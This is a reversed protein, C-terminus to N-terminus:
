NVSHNHRWFAMEDKQWALRKLITLGTSEMILLESNGKEPQSTIGWDSAIRHTIGHSHILCDTLGHITTKISANCAPFLFGYGSSYRSWYPCCMIRKMSSTTWHLWGAVLNRAPRGSTHHWILSWYPILPPVFFYSGSPKPLVGTYSNGELPFMKGYFSVLDMSSLSYDQELEQEGEGNQRPPQVLLFLLQYPFSEMGDLWRCAM